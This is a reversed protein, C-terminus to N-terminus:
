KKMMNELAEIRSVIEVQQVYKLCNQLVLGCANLRIQSPNEEDKIIQRITDVAETLTAKLANCAEDLAMFRRRDYEAKFAEDALRNYITARSVGSIKEAEAVTGCSLLAALIQEDKPKLEM